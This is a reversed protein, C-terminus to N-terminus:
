KSTSDPIQERQGLPVRGRSSRPPSASARLRYVGYDPAGSRWTAAGLRTVAREGRRTVPGSGTWVAAGNERWQGAGSRSTISTGSAAGERAGREGASGRPDCGAGGSASPSG